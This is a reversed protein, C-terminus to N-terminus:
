TDPLIVLKIPRILHQCFVTINRKCLSLKHLFACCVLDLWNDELLALLTKMFLCVFHVVSCTNATAALVFASDNILNIL